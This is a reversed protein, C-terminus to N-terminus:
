RSGGTPMVVTQRIRQDGVELEFHGNAAPMRFSVRAPLGDSFFKIIGGSADFLRATPAVITNESVVEAFIEVVGRMDKAIKHDWVDIETGSDLDDLEEMQREDIGDGVGVLVCKLPNRAGAAIERCLKVTYAKVEALDNLQGDTVFVYMGNKADAFRDAFYKVAPALATGDGFGAKLPGAFSQRECDTATLDGVEEIASGNGCAWYVVTTGGDADLNAALYATFRRALSEVENPTWAFYGGAVLESKCTHTLVPHAEGQYQVFTIEGRRTLSEIVSQPPPGKPGPGLGRGYMPEMSKSADLAVGTQWGEAEMGQPEMLITFLVEVEGGVRRVNVEGFGAAVVTSPLQQNASAPAPPPPSSGGLIRNWFGM